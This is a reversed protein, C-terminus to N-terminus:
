VHFRFWTGSIRVHKAKTWLLNLKAMRFPKDLARLSTPVQAVIDNKPKNAAVSYKNIAETDYTISLVFIIISTACRM